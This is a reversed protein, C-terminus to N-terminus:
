EKYGRKIHERLEILREARRRNFGRGRRYIPRYKVVLAVASIFALATIVVYINANIYSILSKFIDYTPSVVTTSPKSPISPAQMILAPISYNLTSGPTSIHLSLLMTGTANGTKIYFDTNIVQNPSANVAIAPNEIRGSIPGSMSLNVLQPNSGTYLVDVTINNISNTYFIPVGIDLIDLMTRLKPASYFSISQTTAMLLQQSTLNSIKYYGYTSQGAPLYDVYWEIEYGSATKVVTNHIGYAYIDSINRTAYLPIMTDVTANILPENAPASISAVGSATKTGNDLYLQSISSPQNPLQVAVDFTIFERYTSTTGSQSTINITIPAIYVSSPMTSNTHIYINNDIGQHPLLTVSTSSISLINAFQKPISLNLTETLNGTNLLGLSATTSGGQLITLYLPVTTFNLSPIASIPVISSISAGTPTSSSHNPSIVTYTLLSSQSTYHKGYIEYTFYARVNYTGLDSTANQPLTLSISESGPSENPESYVLKLNVPGSINLNLSTNLATLNGTNTLNIYITQLSSEVVSSNGHMATIIINPPLLTSFTSTVSNSSVDTLNLRATYEGASLTINSIYISHKTSTSTISINSINERLVSRSNNSIQFYGSASPLSCDALPYATYNFYAPFGSVYSPNTNFTLSFPCMVSVNASLALTNTSAHGLPVAIIILAMIVAINYLYSRHM